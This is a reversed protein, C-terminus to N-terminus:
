MKSVVKDGLLEKKLVLGSAVNTRIKSLLNMLDAVNRLENVSTVERIPLRTVQKIVASVMMNDDVTHRGSLTFISKEFKLDERLIGPHLFESVESPSVSPSPFFHDASLAVGEIWKNGRVFYRNDLATWREPVHDQSPCRFASISRRKVNKDNKRQLRCCYIVALKNDVTIREIEEWSFLNTMKSDQFTAIGRHYVRILFHEHSCGEEVPYPDV